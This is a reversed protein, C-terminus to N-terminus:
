PNFFDPINSPYILDSSAVSAPHKIKENKGTEHRAVGLNNTPELHMYSIFSFNFEPFGRRTDPFKV